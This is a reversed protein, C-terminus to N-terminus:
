RSLIRFSDKVKEFEPLYKDFYYRAPADYSLQYFSAEKLLGYIVAKRKLRNATEYSYILKFGPFSDIQAPTNELIKVKLLETNSHLDDIIIEAAEQPLMNQTFKKRTHPLKETIPTQKIQINELLVGDRTLLLFDSTKKYKRWNQPAVIMFNQQPFALTGYVMVWNTCSVVFLTLLVILIIRKM